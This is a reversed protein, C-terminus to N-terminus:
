IWPITLKKINTVSRKEKSSESPVPIQISKHTLNFNAIIIEDKGIKAECLKFSMDEEDKCGEGVLRYFYNKNLQAFISSGGFVGTNAMLIYSPNKTVHNNAEIHFRDIAGNFSPCIIFDVDIDRFYHAFREFDRCILIVFKGFQTEYKYISDGPIMGSEWMEKDEPAAPTIKSQYILNVKSKMIVPCTNKNDKYYGGSIVIMDSYKKKIEPIWAEFLCLEPLCVINAGDNKAIDLGSFIKSKVMEKNEIVFPFSKTLQYCFQVIAVRVVEQQVECIHVIRIRPISLNTSIFDFIESFAMVKEQVDMNELSKLKDCASKKKDEHTIYECWEKATNIIRGLGIELDLPNQLSLEHTQRCTRQGFDMLPTDKTSKYIEKSRRQIEAIKGKIRDDIIPLGKRILKSAGPAIEETDELIDAVRECYRRYANLDCKVSIFDKENLNQVEKLANGLNEVAEILQEKSESGGVASKAESLYNQVEAEIDEKKFTLMYFSRYFPLCFKAPNSHTEQQLSKEFYQIADEMEKKFNEENNTSAAKFISVKGMSHYASSLIFRYKQKLQRNEYISIQTKPIKDLNITKQVLQLLDDWALEKEPISPFAVGLAEAAGWQVNEDMDQTLRHLDHWALEKDLIHPFAIGLAKVAELRVNKDLDQTLRHLDHWALKKDPIHPFAIGLAKVAELRVNKDLDQTLRHLDHWALEKDPIHSFAIGLAKAAGM